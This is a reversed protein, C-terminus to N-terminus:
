FRPKVYLLGTIYNKIKNYHELTSTKDYLSIFLDDFLMGEEDTITYKVKKKFNNNEIADLIRYSPVNNIAGLYPSKCIDQKFEYIIDLKRDDEIEEKISVDISGKESEEDSDYDYDNFNSSFLYGM